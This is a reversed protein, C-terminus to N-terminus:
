SALLGISFCPKLALTSIKAMVALSLSKLSKASSISLVKYGRIRWRGTKECGGEEIERLRSLNRQLLRSSLNKLFSTVGNKVYDNLGNSKKTNASDDVEEWKELSVTGRAQM